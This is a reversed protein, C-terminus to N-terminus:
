AWTDQGTHHGRACCLTGQGSSAHSPVRSLSHQGSTLHHPHCFQHCVPGQAKRLGNM